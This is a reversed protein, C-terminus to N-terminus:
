LRGRHQQLHLLHHGDYVPLTIRIRIEVRPHRRTQRYGLLLSLFLFRGAPHTPQSIQLNGDTSTRPYVDDEDDGLFLLESVSIGSLVGTGTDTEELHKSQDYYLTVSRGSLIDVGAFVGQLIEQMLSLFTKQSAEAKIAAYTVGLSGINKYSSYQLASLCDICNLEVEDYVENYSQSYVQPEIYGAFECTGQRYINVVAERCSSCFFDATYNRCLLRVRAQTLLLHDFTDNVQSETEVADDNFFYDGDETGIEVTTSQDGRTLIYVKIEEDNKNYFTGYLLM